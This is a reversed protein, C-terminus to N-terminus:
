DRRAADPMALPANAGDLFEVTTFILETEGINELDHIMFEGAPFSHHKTDGPEYSVEVIRGDAYHSRARGGTVATWFYDLVHSHFGIREGPKLSLAWVRVRETESVLRSGVQGRGAGDVFDRRLHEPWDAPPAPWHAIIRKAM